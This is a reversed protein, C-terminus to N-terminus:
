EKRGLEMPEDHPFVIFNATSAKELVFWAVEDKRYGKIIDYYQLRTACIDGPIFVLGMNETEVMLSVHERSHYPTHFVRISGFLETGDVIDVIEKWSEVVIEYTRGVLEGFKRADKTKWDPHVLVRAKPFFLSNFAHDLHFHTLIIDTVDDVSLNLELLRGQLRGLTPYGGPDVLIVRHTDRLLTVTSFPAEVGSLRLIGGPVLVEIKV